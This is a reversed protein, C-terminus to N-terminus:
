TNDRHWWYLSSGCQILTVPCEWLPQLDKPHQTPSWFFTQINPMCVKAQKKEAQLQQTFYWYGWSVWNQMQPTLQELVQEIPQWYLAAQAATSLQHKQKYLTEVRHKYNPLDLNAANKHLYSNQLQWTSLVYSWIIKVISINVQTGTAALHPHLEDITHAWNSSFWGHYLQEWGLWTQSQIPKGPTAASRSACRWVTHGNQNSGFQAVNSYLCM